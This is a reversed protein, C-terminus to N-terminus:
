LELPIFTPPGFVERAVRRLEHDLGMAGQIQCFALDESAQLLLDALPAPVLRRVGAEPDGAGSMLVAIVRASRRLDHAQFAADRTRTASAWGILRAGHDQPSVLAHEPRVDGHSWGQAHIFHLLDLLRRWIWVGHRPDLGQPFRANLEALSGWFGNPHRLILAQRAGQGEVNGQAVVVPLRRAAYVGAQETAQEHLARLVTAERAYHVAAEPSSSLKITVLLPMPGLRQGLYVESIEGAGLKQSLRYSQGRCVLESGSVM